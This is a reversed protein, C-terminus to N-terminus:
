RDARQGEVKPFSHATDVKWDQTSEIVLAPFQIPIGRRNVSFTMFLLPFKMVIVLRGCWMARCFPQLYILAWLHFIPAFLPIIANRGNIHQMENCNVDNLAASDDAPQQGGGNITQRRKLGACPLAPGEGRQDWLRAWRGAIFRQTSVHLEGIQLFRTLSLGWESSRLSRWFDLMRSSMKRRRWGGGAGVVSLSM